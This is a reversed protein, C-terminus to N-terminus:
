LFYWNSSITMRGLLPSQHTLLTEVVRVHSRFLVIVVESKQFHQDWTYRLSSLMASDAEATYLLEGLIPIPM